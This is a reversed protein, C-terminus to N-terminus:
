SIKIHMYIHVHYILLDIVPRVDFHRAFKSQPHSMFNNCMQSVSHVYVYFHSSSIESPGLTLDLKAGSM